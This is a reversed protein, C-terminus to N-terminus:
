SGMQKGFWRYEVQVCNTAHAFICPYYLPYKYKKATMNLICAKCPLTGARHTGQENKKCRYKAEVRNVSLMLNCRTKIQDCTPLKSFNNAKCVVQVLREVRCEFLPM